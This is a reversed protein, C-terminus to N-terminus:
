RIAKRWASLSPQSVDSSPQVAIGCMKRYIVTCASKTAQIIAGVSKDLREDVAIVGHWHDPMVVQALLRVRNGRQAQIAPTKEWEEQVMCGLTSLEVGPQQLDDNLRGLLKERGRVVLTILYIGRDHYDHGSNHPRYSLTNDNTLM